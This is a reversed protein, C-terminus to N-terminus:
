ELPLQLTSARQLLNSIKQEIAPSMPRRGSLVTSLHQRSIGLEEAVVAQSRGSTALYQQLEGALNGGKARQDTLGFNRYHNAYAAGAELEIRSELASRWRAETMRHSYNDAGRAVGVTELMESFRGDLDRWERLTGHKDELTGLATELRRLTAIRPKDTPLGAADLLEEVRRTVRGRGRNWNVRFDVELRKGLLLDARENVPHLRNLEDDRGMVLKSSALNIFLQHPTVRIHTWRASITQKILDAPKLLEQNNAGDIEIIGGDESILNDGAETLIVSGYENVAMLPGQRGQNGSSASLRTMSITAWYERIEDLDRTRYGGSKHQKYRLMEALQYITVTVSDDARRSRLWTALIATLLQATRPGAASRPDGLREAIKRQQRQEAESPEANPRQNIVLEACLLVDRAFDEPDDRATITATPFLSRPVPKFRGREYAEGMQLALKESSVLTLNSAAEWNPIGIARGPVVGIQRGQHKVVNEFMAALQRDIEAQPKTGIGNLLDRMKRAEANAENANREILDRLNKRESKPRSTLNQRCGKLINLTETLAQEVVAQWEGLTPVPQQGHAKRWDSANFVGWSFFAAFTADGGKLNFAEPHVTPREVRENTMEAATACNM